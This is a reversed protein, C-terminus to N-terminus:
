RLESGSAVTTAPISAPAHAFHGSGSHEATMARVQERAALYEARADARTYASTPQPMATQQLAWESAYSSLEGRNKMLEAQVQARSLTGVFPRDQGIPGEARAQGSMVAAALTAALVTGAFSLTSAFRQNM